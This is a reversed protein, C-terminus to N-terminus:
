QRCNTYARKSTMTQPLLRLEHLARFEHLFYRKKTRWHRLPIIEVFRSNILMRQRCSRFNGTTLLTYCALLARSARLLGYGQRFRYPILIIFLVLPYLCDILLYSALLRLIMIRVASSERPNQGSNTCTTSALVHGCNGMIKIRCLRLYRGLTTPEREPVKMYHGSSPKRHPLCFTLSSHYLHCSM